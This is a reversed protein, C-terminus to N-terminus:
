KAVIMRKSAAEQGDILLSYIYMGPALESGSVTVQGEQNKVPVSMLKRGNMDFIMIDATTFTHTLHYRIETSGNFPNPTNQFLMDDSVSTSSSINEVGANKTMLAELRAIRDELEAIKADKQAILKDQEQMAKIIVPILETYQIGHTHMSDDGVYVIEKIVEKTEQAILGLSRQSVPNDNLNYSVPRLHRIADLGYELDRVNSKLRADSIITPANCLFINNWRKVSTGLDRTCSGDPVVNGAVQLLNGTTADSNTGIGVHGDTGIAIGTATLNGAADAPALYMQGNPIWYQYHFRFSNTPSGTFIADGQYLDLLMLPNTTGGIGVNGTPKIVVKTVGSQNEAVLLDGPTGCSSNPTLRLNAVGSCTADKIHLLANPSNTGIGVKGNKYIDDNISTPTTNSLTLWDQGMISSVDRYNVVGNNSVLVKTLSNDNPINQIKLKGSIDVKEAPTITGVGLNGNTFTMTYPDTMYQDNHFVFGGAARARFENAALNKVTPSTQFDSFVISGDFGNTSCDEGIAVSNNGTAQGSLAAFSSHGSALSYYGFAAADIGSAEAHEGAALSKSGSAIGQGAAFSNDGSATANNVAFAGYQTAQAGNNFAASADGSAVSNIGGAISYTGSATTTNGTAFAAVGSANTSEGFATANSNSAHTLYNAAFAGSASAITSVNAAFSGDGSATTSNGIAASYMGINANDWQSSTVMGSRFAAKDPIWMMRTGAGSVTNTGTAGSFLVCGNFVHFLASPSSTGIGVGPGGSGILGGPTYLIQANVSITALCASLALTLKSKFTGM